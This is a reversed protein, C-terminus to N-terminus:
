LEALRDQLYRILRTIEDRRIDKENVPAPEDDLAPRMYHKGSYFIAAYEDKGQKPYQLRGWQNGAGDNFVDSFDVTAGISETRYPKNSTAPGPRINVKEIVIFTQPM